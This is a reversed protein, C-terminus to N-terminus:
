PPEGELAQRAVAAVVSYNPDCVNGVRLELVQTIWVLADARDMGYETAVWDVLETCAIRTADELPRASGVVMMYRDNTIRPWRIAQGKILEFRCVLNVPVECAVGGIEGHGQTAHGDGCFFLGGPNHVPLHLTNGPCTEPCDMNGGYHSPTLANIAELKPATGITGMFPSLPRSLRGFWVRGDRLPLKRVVEPLSETLMATVTTGTLLGFQPVLGTLAWDRTIEIDEIHVLLTDGEEAGNVFVPGTQPNLYPYECVESYSQDERVLRNEFCDVCHIRVRQGPDVHAIPEHGASYTYRYAGPQRIDLIEDRM